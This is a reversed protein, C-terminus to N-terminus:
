ANKISGMWMDWMAIKEIIRRKKRNVQSQDLHMIQGIKIENLGDRYKLELLKKLSGKFDRIKWDIENYEIELKDLEELVKERLALKQTIREIKLDTIRMVEREAYSMGDSSTQVREEFSPSKSEPELTINCERLDAYITKIQSELINLRGKLEKEHKEKAYYRCLKREINNFLEKDM